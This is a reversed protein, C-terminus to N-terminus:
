RSKVLACFEMMDTSLLLSDSVMIGDSKRRFNDLEMRGLPVCAQRKKRRLDAQGWGLPHCRPHRKPVHTKMSDRQLVIICTDRIGNRLVGVKDIGFGKIRRVNRLPDGFDLGSPSLPLVGSNVTLM